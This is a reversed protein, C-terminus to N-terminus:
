GKLDDPRHIVTEVVVPASETWSPVDRTSLVLRSEGSFSAELREAPMEFRYGLLRPFTIEVWPYKAAREPVARIRGPKPASPLASGAPGLEM